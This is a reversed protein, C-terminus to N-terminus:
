HNIENLLVFTPILVITSQRKKVRGFRGGMEVMLEQKITLEELPSERVGHQTGGTEGQSIRYFLSNSTSFTIPVIANGWHIRSMNQLPRQGTGQKTYHLTTTEHM